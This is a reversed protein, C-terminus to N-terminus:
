IEGEVALQELHERYLTVAIPVYVEYWRNNGTKDGGLLLIACRRPDFAYLVRFPRGNSQIRLERLAVLSKAAKSLGKIQSSYPYDLTTGQERLLGVVSDM